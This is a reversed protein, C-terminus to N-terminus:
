RTVTTQCRSDARGSSLETQNFTFPIYFGFSCLLASCAAPHLLWLSTLTLFAGAASNLVSFVAAAEGRRRRANAEFFGLWASCIGLGFRADTPRNGDDDDDRERSKMAASRRGATERQPRTEVVWIPWFGRYIM